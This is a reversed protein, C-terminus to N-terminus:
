STTSSSIPRRPRSPEDGLHRLPMELPANLNPNAEALFPNAHSAGRHSGRPQDSRHLAM